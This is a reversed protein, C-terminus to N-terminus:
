WKGSPSSVNTCQYFYWRQYCRCRRQEIQLSLVTRSTSSRRCMLWLKCSAPSTPVDNVDVDEISLKHFCFLAVLLDGACWDGSAVQVESVDVGHLPRNLASFAFVSYSLVVRLPDGACLDDAAGAVSHLPRNRASCTFVSCSLSCTFVSCTLSCTFVSYSLSCTFVSCSLSCTFVSCSLSCTFVSYSLSCTFVSCSLSCTFVSCSLSCTFVSCSLFLLTFCFLVVQLPKGACPDDVVQQQLVTFLFKQKEMKCLSSLVFLKLLLENTKNKFSLVCLKLQPQLVFLFCDAGPRVWQLNQGGWCFPCCLCSLEVWAWFVIEM